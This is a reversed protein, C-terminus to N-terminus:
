DIHTRLTESLADYAPKPQYDRDFILPQEDPSIQEQLWSEADTFGWMGFATCADSELCISLMQRYMEAQRELRRDLSGAAETLHVDMETIHVQLGLEGLRAMNAEVEYPAPSNTLGIHMQLGVGHIPVGKAQLGRVLEYVANSKPNLGEASFDNYFLLAGPDAEHAFRFALEIYEPGIRELWITERLSGDDELAENVVDWAFVRGRYRGVVTTIYDRLVAISEERTFDGEAFWEPMQQHWVLTHGRVALDHQEAYAVIADVAAFYYSGQRPVLPEFKMEWSPTIMNFEAAVLGAYRPDSELPGSQVATGIYLGHEGALARLPPAAAPAANHSIALATASLVLTLSFLAAIIPLRTGTPQRGPM